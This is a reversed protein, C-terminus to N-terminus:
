LRMSGYKLGTLRPSAIGRHQVLVKFINGMGEPYILRKLKLRAKLNELESAGPEYLDAFENAEGLALLFRQQSTFGTFELGADNGADILASFNVHATLDVQGPATFLDESPWHRHYALLTGQPRGEIFLYKALDGYDVTIVFGRILKEAITRMWQTATLNVEVRRGEHLQNAYRAVAAAIAPDHIPGLEECLEDGRAAVYVEKLHGGARAVVAVPFADVLENSFFCGTIPSLQELNELLRVAGALGNEALREGLRASQRPGTEIAAYDLAPAFDPAASKVWSLFDQAFLGRGAGMEVWSFRSPRGLMDWMEAAQRAVLRAFIPHLDPSTFYDGEAGTRNRGQTYYGYEPHYLCSAMYREFTIAGTRRLTDLLLRKLPTDCM